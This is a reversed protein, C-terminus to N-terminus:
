RRSQMEREREGKEAQEVGAVHAGGDVELGELAEQLGRRLECELESEDKSAVPRLAAPFFCLYTIIEYLQSM